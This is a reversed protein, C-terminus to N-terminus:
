LVELPIRHKHFRVTGNRLPVTSGTMTREIWCRAGNRCPPTSGQGTQVSRRLGYQRPPGADIARTFLYQLRDHGPPGNRGGGGDFLRQNLYRHPGERLNYSIWDKTGDRIPVTSGRAKEGVCRVTGDQGPPGNRGDIDMLHYHVLYRPPGTDVEKTILPIAGDRGPPGNRGGRGNFLRRNLYRQPGERLDYSCMGKAGIRIPLTSGRCFKGVAHAVGNRAPSARGVDVDASPRYTRAHRVLEM